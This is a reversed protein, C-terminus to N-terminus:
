GGELAIWTRNQYSCSAAPRLRRPAPGPRRRAPRQGLLRAARRRLEGHRGAAHFRLLGADGFPVPASAELRVVPRLRVVQCFGAAELEGTLLDVASPYAIITGGNLLPRTEYKVTSSGSGSAPVPRSVRGDPRRSGVAAQIAHSPLVDAAPRAAPQVGVDHWLRRAVSWLPEARKADLALLNASRIRPRHPRPRPQRTRRPARALLDGEALARDILFVRGGGIAIANHRISQRADYRWRLKGSEADLAFLAASESFQQQMEDDARLYAHRVIHQENALSGFLM